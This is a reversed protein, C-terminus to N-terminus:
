VMFDGRRLPAVLLPLRHPSFYPPNALLTNIFFGSIFARRNGQLLTAALSGMLGSPGHLGSVRTVMGWFMHSDHSVICVLCLSEQSKTGLAPGEGEPLFVM